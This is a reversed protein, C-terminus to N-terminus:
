LPGWYSRSPALISSSGELRNRFWKRWYLAQSRVYDISQTTYPDMDPSGRRAVPETLMLLATEYALWVLPATTTDASAALTALTSFDRVALLRVTDSSTPLRNLFNLTLVGEDESLRVGTLEDWTYQNTTTGERLLLAVVQNASTLWTYSALSYQRQNDVGAFDIEELFRARELVRNAYRVVRSPDFVRWIEFAENAAPNSSVYADVTFVGTSPTDTLIRRYIDQGATVSPRVLIGNKFWQNSRGTDLFPWAACTLSTSSGATATSTVVDELIEGCRTRLSALTPM